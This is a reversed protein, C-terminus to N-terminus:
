VRIWIQRRLLAGRLQTLKPGLKSLLEALRHICHERIRAESLPEVLEIPLEPRERSKVVRRHAPLQLKCWLLLPLQSLKPELPALLHLTQASRSAIHGTVRLDCVLLKCRHLSLKLLLHLLDHRWLLPLCPRLNGTLWEAERLGREEWV